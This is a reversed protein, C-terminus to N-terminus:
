EIVRACLAMISANLKAGDMGQSGFLSSNLLWWVSGHKGPATIDDSM